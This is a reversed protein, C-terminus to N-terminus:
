GSFNNVSGEMLFKLLSERTAAGQYVNEGNVVPIVSLNQNYALKLAEYPHNEVFVAPSYRLFDSASIPQEPTEWDLLDSEQVLAVYQEKVVVPLQGLNNDDMLQLVKDGTDSPDLTPVEYAIVNKISM